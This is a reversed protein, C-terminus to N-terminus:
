SIRLAHTVLLVGQTVVIGPAAAATCPISASM